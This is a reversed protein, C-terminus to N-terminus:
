VAKLEEVRREEIAKHMKEMAKLETVRSEEIAKLKKSEMEVNHRLLRIEYRNQFFLEVTNIVVVLSVSM